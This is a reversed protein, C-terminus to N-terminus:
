LNKRNPVWEVRDRGANKALYLAEDARKIMDDISQDSELLSTVGLSITVQNGMITSERVQMRTREAFNWSQELDAAPLLILFEEGGYRGLIDYIRVSQKIRNCVEKLAEDGSLHGYNDNITKFHDIDVIICGLDKRLRRAQEFEEVFRSLIYRRNFLGTLEDTIAIKEITARAQALKKILKRAFFYVLGLVLATTTVGFLIIFYTNLRITRQLDDVDFAVSIGGRVMGLEYHQKGHCPLCDNEILLPAMYRFYARDGIREIGYSEKAQGAEFQQLANKEFEDPANRPNMLKSSTIHFKFLGDHEAFESIERTMLAPNRLTYVKGDEARIDPDELYRNSEVGKKKEVYVGGYNANWKRMLIVSNFLARAQIVNEENILQRTRVAMDLFIGSLVLSIVLGTSILFARYLKKEKADPM